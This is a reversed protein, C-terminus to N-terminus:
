FVLLTIGLLAFFSLASFAGPAKVPQEALFHIQNCRVPSGSAPSLASRSHKEDFAVSIPVREERDRKPLYTVHHSDHRSRCWRCRYSRRSVSRLKSAVRATVRFTYRSCAARCKAPRFTQRVSQLYRSLSSGFYGRNYM